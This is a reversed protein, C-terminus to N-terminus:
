RRRRPPAAADPSDNRDPRDPRDPDDDAREADPAAAAGTDPADLVPASVARGLSEIPGEDAPEDPAASEDAPPRRIASPAPTKRRPRM